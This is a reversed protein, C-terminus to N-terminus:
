PMFCSWLRMRREGHLVGPLEDGSCTTPICCAKRPGSSSIRSCCAPGTHLRGKPVGALGVPKRVAWIVRRKKNAVLVDMQAELMSVGDGMLSRQGFLHKLELLVSLHQVGLMLARGTPERYDEVVM